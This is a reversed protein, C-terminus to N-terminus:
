GVNYDAATSYTSIVIYHMKFFNQRMLDINNQLFISYINEYNVVVKERYECYVFKFFLWSSAYVPGVNM